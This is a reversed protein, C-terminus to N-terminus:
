RHPLSRCAGACSGVVLDGIGGEDAGNAEVPLERADAIEAADGAFGIQQQAVARGTPQFHVVDIVVLEGVRGENPRDTQLPLERADGRNVCGTRGIEHQPVDVAACELDVVNSVIL